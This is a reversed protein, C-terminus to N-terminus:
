GGERTVQASHGFDVGWMGCDCQAQGFWGCEQCVGIYRKPDYYHNLETPIIRAENHRAQPWADRPTACEACIGEGIFVSVRDVPWENYVHLNARLCPPCLDEKNVKRDGRVPGQPPAKADDAAAATAM